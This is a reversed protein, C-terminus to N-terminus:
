AAKKRRAMGVLGLLGSGFLWAAAPIPVQSVSLTTWYNWIPQGTAVPASPFSTWTAPAGVLEDAIISIAITHNFGNDIFATSNAQMAHLTPDLTIISPAGAPVGSPGPGPPLVDWFWSMWGGATDTLTLSVSLIGTPPTVGLSLKTGTLNPDVGYIYEWAAVQPLATNEDGWSMLLGDDMGSQANNLAQLSPTVQAYDVGAIGYYDLAAYPTAVESVQGINLANQWDAQTNLSFLPSAFVTSYQVVMGIAVIFMTRRFNM